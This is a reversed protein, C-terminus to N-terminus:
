VRACGGWLFFGGTGPNGCEPAGVESGLTLYSVLQGSLWSPHKVVGNTLLKSAHILAEAPTLCVDEQSDGDARGKSGFAIIQRGLAWYRILDDDQM